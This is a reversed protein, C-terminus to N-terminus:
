RRRSHRSCARWNAPFGFVVSFLVWLVVAAVVGFAFTPRAAWQDLIHLVRSGPHRQGTREPSTKRVPQTREGNHEFTTEDQKLDRGGALEALDM